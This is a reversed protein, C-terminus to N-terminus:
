GGCYNGFKMGVQEMEEKEDQIQSLWDQKLIHLSNSVTGFIRQPVSSAPETPRLLRTCGHVDKCQNWLIISPSSSARM